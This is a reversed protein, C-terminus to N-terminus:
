IYQVLVIIVCLGALLDDLIIGFAGDYFQSYYIISPKFIDFVRFLIFAISMIVLDTLFLLPLSMGIVEDIVIEQPDKDNYCILSNKISFFGIISICFFFLLRFLIDEPMFIYWIFLTVLSAITGPAYKVKGLYFFTSILQSIRNKIM